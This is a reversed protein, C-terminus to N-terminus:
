SGLFYKWLHRFIGPLTPNLLLKCSTESSRVVVKTQASLRCVMLPHTLITLSSAALLFLSLCVMPSIVTLENCLLLEVMRHLQYSAQSEIKIDDLHLFVFAYSAQLLAPQLMYINETVRKNANEILECHKSLFKLESHHSWFHKDLRPAYIYIVCDWEVVLSSSFSSNGAASQTVIGSRTTSSASSKDTAEQLMLLNHVVTALRDARGLGPIALIGRAHRTTEVAVPFIFILVLVLWWVQGLVVVMPLNSQPHDHRVAYLPLHVATSTV